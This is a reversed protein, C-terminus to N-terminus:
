GSVRIIEGAAFATWGLRCHRFSRNFMRIIIQTYDLRFETESDFEDFLHSKFLACFDQSSKSGAIEANAM